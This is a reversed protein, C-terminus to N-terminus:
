SAKAKRSDGAKCQRGKLEFEKLLAAQDSEDHCEVVIWYRNPAIDDGHKIAAQLRKVSWMEGDTGLAYRLWQKQEAPALGAVAQHHSYSLGDAIRRRSPDIKEAVWAYTRITTLEWGTADVLQSAKEGFRQEVANIWDGIAFQISAHWTKFYRGLLDFHEFQPAGKITLGNATIEFYKGIPVTEFEQTSVLQDKPVNVVAQLHHVSM